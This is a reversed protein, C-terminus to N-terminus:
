SRRVTSRRGVRVCDACTLTSGCTGCWVLSRRYTLLGALFGLLMAMLAAIMLAVVGGGEDRTGDSLM